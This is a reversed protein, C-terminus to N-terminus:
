NSLRSIIENGVDEISQNGNIRILLGQSEYWGALPSTQEHYASLRTRVTSENDDKRQILRQSISEPAPNFKTHYIAGTEPDMRRGVIREVISDDPVEISIVASVQVIKALEEAQTITRPYGDFLVGGSADDQTLRENILGIIVDDPVLEGAEMFVKAALGMKSGSSVAERLMDGTSVQPKSTLNVIRSAQTGKGAGPPGFLVISGKM